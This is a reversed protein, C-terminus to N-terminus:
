KYIIIPTIKVLPGKECIVADKLSEKPMQRRISRNLKFVEKVLDYIEIEEETNYVRDIRGIITIENDINDLFDDKNGIICDKKLNCNFIYDSDLELLIPINDSEKIYSMKQRDEDSISIADFWSTNRAIVNIMEINESMEPTSMKGNLVILKDKDVIDLEEGDYNIANKENFVWGVIQELSSLKISYNTSNKENLTAGTKALKIDLGGEVETSREYSESIEVRNLEPIQNIYSEIRNEDCYIYDRFKQM